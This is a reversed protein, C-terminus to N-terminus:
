RKLLRKGPESRSALNRFAKNQLKKEVLARKGYFLRTIVIEAVPNRLVGGTPDVAPEVLNVSRTGLCCM